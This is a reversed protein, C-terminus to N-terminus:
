THADQTTIAEKTLLKTLIPMPGIEIFVHNSVSKILPWYNVTKRIHDTLYDSTVETLEKKNVTSLMRTYQINKSVSEKSLIKHAKEHFQPLITDMERSHFGHSVNLLISRIKKDALKTKLENLRSIKGSLVLQNPSNIAAIDVDNILDNITDIHNIDIKVALMGSENLPLSGILKGRTIILEFASEFSILGAVIYAAYEGISHGLVWEPPEQTTLMHQSLAYQYAFILPQSFETHNIKEPDQIVQNLNIGFNEAIESCHGWAKCFSNYKLLPEAMNAKQSGQGTYQWIM